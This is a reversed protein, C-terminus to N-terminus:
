SPNAYCMERLPAISLLGFGLGKASGIGRGLTQPFIDPDTVKLVGEFRVSFLILDHPSDSRDTMKDHAIGEPVVSLSVIEFGGEKAKRHLWEIQNDERLIGLRKGDRKITPNAQLRFYLMQGVAVIPDYIKWQPPELLFNGPGNLATWDPENESQVLVSIDGKRLDIDLRFLVRGPGGDKEDPFACMLSRHLEYPRSVETMAKRSRPNLKLRSLYM